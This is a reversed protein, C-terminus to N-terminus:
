ETTGRVAVRFEIEREREREEYRVPFVICKRETPWSGQGSSRLPLRSEKKDEGSSLRGM